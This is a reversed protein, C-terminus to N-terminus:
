SMHKRMGLCTSLFQEPMHTVHESMHAAWRHCVQYLRDPEAASYPSMLTVTATMSWDLKARQQQAGSSAINVSDFWSTALCREPLAVGNRDNMPNTFAIGLRLEEDGQAFGHTKCPHALATCTRVRHLM